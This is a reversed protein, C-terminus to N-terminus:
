GQSVVYLTEHEPVTVAAVNPVMDMTVARGNNAEMVDLWDWFGDVQLISDGAARPNHECLAEAAELTLNLVHAVAAPDFAFDEPTNIMQRKALIALGEWDVVRVGWTEGDRMLDRCEDRDFGM